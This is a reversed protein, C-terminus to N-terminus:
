GGARRLLGNRLRVRAAGPAQSAAVATATAHTSNVRSALIERKYTATWRRDGPGASALNVLGDVGDLVSPDLHRSSPDWQVEDASGPPRRVLRVVEDGRDKLAAVLATGILGSSGTVAIRAM